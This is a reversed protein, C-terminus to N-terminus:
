ASEKSKALHAEAEIKTLDYEDRIEVLIESEPVCHKRCMRVTTMVAIEKLFDDMIKSM